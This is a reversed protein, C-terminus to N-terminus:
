LDCILSVSPQLVDKWTKRLKAQSKYKKCNLLIIRYYKDHTKKGQIFKYIFGGTPTEPYLYGRPHNELYLERINFKVGYYESSYPSLQNALLYM